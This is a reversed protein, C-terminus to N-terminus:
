KEAIKSSVKLTRKPQKSLFIQYTFRESVRMTRKTLQNLRLTMMMKPTEKPKRKQKPRREEYDAISIKRTKGGATFNEGDKERVTKVDEEKALEIFAVGGM